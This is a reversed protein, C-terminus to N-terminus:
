NQQWRTMKNSITSGKLLLLFIFLGAKAFAYNCYSLSYCM